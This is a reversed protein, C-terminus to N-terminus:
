VLAILCKFVCLHKIYIFYILGQEIAFYDYKLFTVKAKKVSLLRVVCEPKGLGVTQLWSRRIKFILSTAEYFYGKGWLM